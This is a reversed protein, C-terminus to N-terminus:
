ATAHRGPQVRRRDGTTQLSHVRVSAALTLAGLVVAWWGILWTIALAGAVPAAVLAVAFVVSLLGSFGLLWHHRIRQRETVAVAIRMAGIVFAWAAIVFLLALATIGPWVFTIVGAAIGALGEILSAGRHGRTAPDNAVAAVLDFVGDVLAFAGFLLVLVDLTAGPWILTLFGFILAAAGRVALSGWTRNQVTAM